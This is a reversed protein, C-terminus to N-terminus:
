KEEGVMEKVLNDIDRVYVVEGYGTIKNCASTGKLREAFEKVAEAKATDLKATAKAWRLRYTTVDFILRDIEAKQRNILALAEEMAIDICSGFKSAPCNNCDEIPCCELYKIIENDTM